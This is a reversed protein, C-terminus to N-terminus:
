GAKQLTIQNEVRKGLILGDNQYIGNSFRQSPRYVLVVDVNEAGDQVILNIFVTEDKVPVRCMLQRTGDSFKPIREFDKPLAFTIPLFDLLDEM